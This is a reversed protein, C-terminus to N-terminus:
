STKAEVKIDQVIGAFKDLDQLLQERQKDELKEVQKKIQEPFKLMLHFQRLYGEVSNTAPPTVKPAEVSPLTDTSLNPNLHGGAQNPLFYDMVAKLFPRIMHIIEGWETQPVYGDDPEGRLEARLDELDAKAEELKGQEKLLDKEAKMMKIEKNMERMERGLEREEDSFTRGRKKRNWFAM